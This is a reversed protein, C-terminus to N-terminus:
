VADGKPRRWAGSGGPRVFFCAPGPSVIDVTWTPWILHAFHALGSSRVCFLPVQGLLEPQCSM